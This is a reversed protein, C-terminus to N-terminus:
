LQRDKTRTIRHTEGHQATRKLPPANSPHAWPLPRIPLAPSPSTLAKMRQKNSSAPIRPWPGGVGGQGQGGGWWDPNDITVGKVDQFFNACCLAGKDSM